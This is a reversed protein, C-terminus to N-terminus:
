YDQCPQLRTNEVSDKKNVFFFPSVMPSKSPRIYGKALNEDIFKNMEKTEPLTLPYVKCDSSLFDDKLEIAHDWPRSEPFRKAREKDFVDLYEHLEPPVIEPLRRTDEKKATEKQALETSFNMARAIWTETLPALTEQTGENELTFECINPEIIEEEMTPYQTRNLPEEPDPEEQIQTRQIQRELAQKNQIEVMRRTAATLKQNMTQRPIFIRGTKWDITPNHEKLWPLGLLVDSKGTNTILFRTLLQQDDFVIHAWTCHTIKGSQNTTGDVNRPIIPKLLPITPIRNEKVFAQNMFLGEAGSDLLIQTEVIQEGDTNKYRLPLSLHMSQAKVNAVLVSSINLSKSTPVPRKILFGGTGDPEPFHITRRRRTRPCSIPGYCLHNKWNEQCQQITRPDPKLEPEPQKQQEKQPM